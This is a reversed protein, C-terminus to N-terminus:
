TLLATLIDSAEGIGNAKVIPRNPERLLPELQEIIGSMLAQFDISGCLCKKKLWSMLYPTEPWDEREMYLVPMRLCAAEVFSGYGPKAILAGCSAM